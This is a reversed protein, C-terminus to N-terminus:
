PTLAVPSALLGSPAFPTSVCATIRHTLVASTTTRLTCGESSPV